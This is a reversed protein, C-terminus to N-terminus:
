RREVGMIKVLQSKIEISVVKIKEVSKQKYIINGFTKYKM